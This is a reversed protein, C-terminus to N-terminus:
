PTEVRPSSREDGLLVALTEKLRTEMRADIQAYDTHVRCDGRALAPDDSVSWASEPGSTVLKTRLLAADEPHLSVRVGRTAAPLLAVTERVIGIIQAPDTRLERRLLGRALQMALQAIQEHIQDDVHALPRALSELAANVVRVQEDLASQQADIQAQAAAVGAARGRAEADAYRRQEEQRQQDASRRVIAGDGIVPASWPQASRLSFGPLEEAELM